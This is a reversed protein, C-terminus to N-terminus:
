SDFGESGIATGQVKERYTHLHVSAQFACSCSTHTFIGSVVVAESNQSSGHYKEGVKLHLSFLLLLFFLFCTSNTIHLRKLDTDANEKVWTLLFFPSVMVSYSNLRIHLM